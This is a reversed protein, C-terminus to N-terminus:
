ASRPLPFCGLRQLGAWRVMSGLPEEWCAGWHICGHECGLPHGRGPQMTVLGRLEELDQHLGHGPSPSRPARPGGASPTCTPPSGENVLSM